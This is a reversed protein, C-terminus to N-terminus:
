RFIRWKNKRELKSVRKGLDEIAKRQQAVLAILLDTYAVSKVGNEDTFVVEPMIKEVQQAPVGYRLTNTTDARM